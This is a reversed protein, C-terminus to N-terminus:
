PKFAKFMVCSNHGGFGFSNSAVVRVDQQQKVGAVVTMPDVGQEPNELNISPHLWGAPLACLSFADAIPLFLCSHLSAGAYSM